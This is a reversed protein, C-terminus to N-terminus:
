IDKYFVISSVSVGVILDEPISTIYSFMDGTLQIAGLVIAVLSFIMIAVALFCMYKYVSIFSHSLVQKNYLWM